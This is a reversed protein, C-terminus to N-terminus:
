ETVSRRGGYRSHTEVVRELKQLMAQSLVDDGTTSTQSKTEVTSTGVIESTELNLMNGM